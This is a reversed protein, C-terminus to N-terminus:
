VIASLPAACTAVTEADISANPGCCTCLGLACCCTVSVLVPLAASVIVLITTEPVFEEANSNGFGHPALRAAPAAQVITPLKVGAVAPGMAAVSVIVSLALPEGCITKRLPAPTYGTVTATMGEAVFTVVACAKVTVTARPPALPSGVGVPETATALPM